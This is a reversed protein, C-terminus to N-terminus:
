ALGGEIVCRALALDGPATVKFNLPTGRVLKVAGGVRRVLTADDTSVFEERRAIEHAKRIVDVRFTQPTQCAWLISRDPTNCLFDDSEAELITDNCPIAVTAAGYAIAADISAHISAVAVFPRAADHIVVIDTDADLAHLGNEVSDQREAGGDILSFPTGPFASALVNRFESAYAGPITVVAGPLLGLGSFARLTRVLMPEGCLDTLAKPGQAGLRQGMGAAPILLQTKM